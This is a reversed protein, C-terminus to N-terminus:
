MPIACPTTHHHPSAESGWRGCGAQGAEGGVLGMGCPADGLYTARHKLTLLSARAPCTKPMLGVMGSCHCKAIVELSSLLHALCLAFAGLKFCFPM